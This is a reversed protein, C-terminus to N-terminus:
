FQFENEYLMVVQEIVRYLELELSWFNLKFEVAVKCLVNV